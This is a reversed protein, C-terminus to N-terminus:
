DYKGLQDYHGHEGKAWIGCGLVLVVFAFLVIIVTIFPHTTVFGTISKFFGGISGRIHYRPIKEAKAEQLAVIIRSPDAGISAGDSLTPYFEDGDPHVIVSTPVQGMKIGFVNAAYDSWEVIDIWGFLVDSREKQVTIVKRLNDM